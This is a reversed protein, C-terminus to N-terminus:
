FMWLTKSFESKLVYDKFGFIVFLFNVKKLVCMFLYPHLQIHILTRESRGTRGSLLVSLPVFTLILVLQKGVKYDAATVRRMM